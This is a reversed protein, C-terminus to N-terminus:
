APTIISYFSLYIFMEALTMFYHYLKYVYKKKKKKPPPPPPPPSPPDLFEAGLGWFLICCVAQQGNWVKPMCTHIFVKKVHIRMNNSM